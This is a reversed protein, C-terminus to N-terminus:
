QNDHYVKAEGYSWVVSVTSGSSTTNVTEGYSWIPEESFAAPAAARKSGLVGIVRMLPQTAFAAGAMILVASVALIVRKM